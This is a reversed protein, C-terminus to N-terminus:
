SGSHLFFGCFLQENKFMRLRNCAVGATSPGDCGMRLKDVTCGGKAQATAYGGPIIARDDDRHGGEGAGFERERCCAGTAACRGLAQQVM